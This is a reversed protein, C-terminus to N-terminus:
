SRGRKGRRPSSSASTLNLVALLDEEQTKLTATLAGTGKDTLSLMESGYLLSVFCAVFAMLSLFLIGVRVKDLFSRSYHRDRKTRGM